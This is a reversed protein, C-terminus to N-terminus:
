ITRFLSLVVCVYILINGCVWLRSTSLERKTMFVMIIIIVISLPSGVSFPELLTEGGIKSPELEIENIRHKQEAGKLIADPYRKITTNLDLSSTPTSSPRRLASSSSVIM